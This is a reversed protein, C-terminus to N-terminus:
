KTRVIQNQNNKFLLIFNDEIHTFFIHINDKYLTNKKLYKKDQTSLKTPNYEHSLIFVDQNKRYRKYVYGDQIHYNFLKRRM